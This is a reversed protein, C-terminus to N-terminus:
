RRREAETSGHRHRHTKALASHQTACLTARLLQFAFLLALVQIAFPSCLWLQGFDYSHCMQLMVFTRGLVKQLVVTTNVAFLAVVLCLSLQLTCQWMSNTAHVSLLYM